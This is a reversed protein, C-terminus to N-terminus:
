GWVREDRRLSTAWTKQGGPFDTRATIPPHIPYRRRIGLVMPTLHEVPM